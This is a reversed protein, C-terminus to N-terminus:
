QALKSLKWKDHVRNFTLETEMGNAIGCIIFLKEKSQANQRGYVINYISDQPLVPAFAGWSDPTIFGEMRSFDDEPDPGTFTIEDSLSQQQFVSDRAFQHYFKLFSANPNNDLMQHQIGSLQWRGENRAFFYQCISDSSLFIKELIVKDVTTDNELERQEPSDFILTYEGANMFFPEMKWQQEDVIKTQRGNKEELPFAIRRRQLEENSAFYYVFDDFLEDAAKPLDDHEFREPLPQQELEESATAEKNKGGTCGMTLVMFLALPYYLRKM